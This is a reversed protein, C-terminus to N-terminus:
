ITDSKIVRKFHTKLYKEEYQNSKTVLLSIYQEKIDLMHSHLQIVHINM